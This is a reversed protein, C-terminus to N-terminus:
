EPQYRNNNLDTALGSDILQAQGVPDYINNQADVLWYHPIKKWEEAYKSSEIWRRRVAPQNFDLGSQMFEHKMEPTFDAKDYVVKDAVFYGRIRTLDINYTRKAWYEMAICAPGCNDRRAYNYAKWGGNEKSFAVWEATLNAPNHSECLIEIIKM